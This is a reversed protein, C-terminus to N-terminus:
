NPTPNCGVLRAYTVIQNIYDHHEACEIVLSPVGRLGLIFGAHDVVAKADRLGLGTSHRTEKIANVLQDSRLHGVVTRIWQPTKAVDTLYHLKIFLAPNSKALALAIAKFNPNGSALIEITEIYNQV